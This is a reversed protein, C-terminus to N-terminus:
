IERIYNPDTIQNNIIAEVKQTYISIAQNALTKLQQALNQVNLENM